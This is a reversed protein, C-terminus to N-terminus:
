ELELPMYVNPKLPMNYGNVNLQSVGGDFSSNFVNVERITSADIYYMPSEVYKKDCLIRNRYKVFASRKMKIDDEKPQLTIPLAVHRLSHLVFSHVGDAEARVIVGPLGCLKWPGASAPINEAFWATWKRGCYDTMAKHCLIGNVTATDNMVTWAIPKREETTEYRHLPLIEMTTIKKEPYGMYIEPINGSRDKMEGDVDDVEYRDVYAGYGLSCNVKDSVLTVWRNREVAPKGEADSTNCTYDYTVVLTSKAISDGHVSVSQAAASTAALFASVLIGYLSMRMM